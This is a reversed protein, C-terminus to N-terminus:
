RNRAETNRDAKSMKIKECRKKVQIDYGIVKSDQVVLTFTGHSTNKLFNGFAQLIDVGIGDILPQFESTKITWDGGRM